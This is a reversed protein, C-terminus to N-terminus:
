RAFSCRAPVSTLALCGSGSSTSTAISALGLEEAAKAGYYSVEAAYSPTISQALDARPTTAM